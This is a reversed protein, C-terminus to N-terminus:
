IPQGTQKIYTLIYRQARITQLLTIWDFNIQLARINSKLETRQKNFKSRILFHEVTELTGCTDCFSNLHLRLKHLHGILQFHCM